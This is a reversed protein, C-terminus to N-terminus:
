PIHTQEAFVAGQEMWAGSAASRGAEVRKKSPTEEKLRALRKGITFGSIAPDSGIPGLAEGSLGYGKV